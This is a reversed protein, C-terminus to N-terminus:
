HVSRKLGEKVRTFSDKCNDILIVCFLCIFCVIPSRTRTRLLLPRLLLSPTLHGRKLYFWQHTFLSSPATLHRPSRIIPPRQHPSLSSGFFSTSQYSLSPSFGVLHQDSSRLRMICFVLPYSPPLPSLSLKGLRCIKM